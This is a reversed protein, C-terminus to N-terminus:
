KACGVHPSGRLLADHGLLRHGLLKQEQRGEASAPPIHLGISAHAKYTKISGFEVFNNQIDKFLTDYEGKILLLLQQVLPRGERNDARLVVM